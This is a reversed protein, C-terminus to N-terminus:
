QEKDRDNEFWVWFPEYDIVHRNYRELAHNIFIILISCIAFTKILLPPLNSQQSSIMGFISSFIICIIIGIAFQLPSKSSLGISIAYFSAILTLSTAAITHTSLLELGIPLLPLVLHLIICAYYDQIEKPLDLLRKKSKNAKNKYM